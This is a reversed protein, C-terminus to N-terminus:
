LFRRKKPFFLLCFFSRNNTQAPSKYRCLRLYILFVLCREKGPFFLLCFFSRNDTQALTKNDSYVSIAVYPVPKGGRRRKRNTLRSPCLTREWVNNSRHCLKTGEGTGAPLFAGGQVKLPTKPTGKGREALGAQSAECVLMDRIAKKRVKKEFFFTCLCFANAHLEQRRRM